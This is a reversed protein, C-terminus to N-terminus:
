NVIKMVTCFDIFQIHWRAFAKERFFLAFKEIYKKYNELSSTFYQIVYTIGEKEDQELLRFFKHDTLLGTSLIGPINEKKQWETWEKEIGPDIKITINYVVM